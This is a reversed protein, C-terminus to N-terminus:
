RKACWGVTFCIFRGVYLLCCWGAHVTVASSVYVPLENYAFFGALTDPHKESTPTLKLQVRRWSGDVRGAMTDLM